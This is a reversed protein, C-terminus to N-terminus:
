PHSSTALEVHKTHPSSFKAPGVIFARHSDRLLFRQRALLLVWWYYKLLLRIHRLMAAAVIIM